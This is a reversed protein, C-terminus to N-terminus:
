VASTRLQLHQSYPCSLLHLPIPLMLYQLQFFYWGVLYNGKSSAHGATELDELNKWIRFEELPNILDGARGMGGLGSVGTHFTLGEGMDEVIWLLHIPAPGLIM